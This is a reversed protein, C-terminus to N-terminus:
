CEANKGMEGDSVLTCFTFNLDFYPSAHFTFSANIPLIVAIIRELHENHIPEACKFIDGKM